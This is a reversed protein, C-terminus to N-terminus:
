LTVVNVEFIFKWYVLDLIGTESHCCISQHNWREMVYVIVVNRYCLIYQANCSIVAYHPFLVCLSSCQVVVCVGFLNLRGFSVICSANRNLLLKCIKVPPPLKNWQSTMFFGKCQLSYVGIVTVIEVYPVLILFVEFWLFATWFIDPPECVFHLALYWLWIQLLSKTITTSNPGSVCVCCWLSTGCWTTVEFHSPCKPVCCRSCVPVHGAMLWASACVAYWMKGFVPCGEKAVKLKWPFAESSCMQKHTITLCCNMDQVWTLATHLSVGNQHWTFKASILCRILLTFSM